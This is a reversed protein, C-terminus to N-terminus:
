AICRMCDSTMLWKMGLDCAQLMKLLRDSYDHRANRSM